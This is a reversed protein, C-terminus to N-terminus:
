KLQCSVTNKEETDDVRPTADVIKGTHKQQFLVFIAKQFLHRPTVIDNRVPSCPRGVGVWGGSGYVFVMQFARKGEKQSM